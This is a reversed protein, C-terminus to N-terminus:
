NDRQLTKNRQLQKVHGKQWKTAMKTRKLTTKCRKANVKSETTATEGEKTATNCRKCANQMDKFNSQAKEAPKADTQPTNADRLPRKTAKGTDDKTPGKLLGDMSTFWFSTRQPRLKLSLFVLRPTIRSKAKDRSRPQHHFSKFSSLCVFFSPSISLCLSSVSPSYSLSLLCLPLLLSLLSSTIGADNSWCGNERWLRM